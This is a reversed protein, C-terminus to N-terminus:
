RNAAPRSFLAEDVQVNHEVKTIVITMQQLSSSSKLQFPVKVGDVDRQDLLETTQELEGFQPVDVKVVLRAPLYSEADIYLRVISGSKPKFILLYAERDRVKEKGGLELTAGVEKYNLLPSPFVANKANELLNGTLERNGQLTDIVYGSTGNFRQDVTMVGAGLASLDLRMLTRAKNPTENLIEIPGSVDGGPTSLTITGTMSRSKLKMLAERGGIATLYKELIDDASQASAIPVWGLLLGLVVLLRSLTRTM